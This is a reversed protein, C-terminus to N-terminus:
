KISIIVRKYSTLPLRVQDTAEIILHWFDGSKAKKPVKVIIESSSKSSLSPILKNNSIENYFWAKSDTENEDLDYIELKIKIKKGAKVIYNKGSLIELSPAHNTNKYSKVCWSARTAFDNQIAPIWRTQAYAPDILNTYPNLDSAKEGDEWSNTNKSSQVLRGGWGGYNPNELNGLGTNVLHLYAPSDGESIFDYKNFSGWMNPQAKKLDSYVEEIEGPPVNGDGYSYYKRLLPGNNNIIPEMYPGEMYKHFDKPVNKKWFYAFSWFQNSNYLMKIQPWQVSVYKKYTADQESISYIIAKKSVKNYIDQWNPKNIYEDEISKLARAITNVGGWAQLYIPELNDDLLKQKILDSGDTDKAMEGEFEINGVRIMSRLLKGEPYDGHQKLMPQVQTYADVLDYIWQTGPWRLETREGYLKKTMEMESTFKTGNGDGSYHWQSSSIVLGEINFENSYLLMRIFSDVDDLEGDTTIITRAKQANLSTISFILLILIKNLLRM